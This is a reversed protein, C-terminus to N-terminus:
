RHSSDSVRSSQKRLYSEPDDLEICCKTGGEGGDGGGGASSLMSKIMAIVMEVRGDCNEIQERFLQKNFKTIGEILSIGVILRDIEKLEIKFSGDADIDLVLSIVDEIVRKELVSRIAANIEKNEEILDMLRSLQTGQTEALSNLAMETEKLRDVDSQLDDIESGLVDNQDSLLSAQERVGNLATRFTDERTLQRERHVVLPSNVIAIGSSVVSCSRGVLRATPLGDWSKSACLAINIVQIGVNGAMGFRTIWEKVGAPRDDNRDEKSADGYDISPGEKGDM